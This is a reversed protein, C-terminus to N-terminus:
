AAPEPLWTRYVSGAPYLAHLRPGYTRELAQAPATQGAARLAKAYAIALRVTRPNDAGRDGLMYEYARRAQERAGGRDGQADLMRSRTAAARAHLELEVGDGVAEVQQLLREATAHDGQAAHWQALPLRVYALELDSVEGTSRELVVRELLARAEDNAQGSEILVQGLTTRLTQLVALDPGAIAGSHIALAERLLPLAQAFEGRLYRLWGAHFVARAYQTSAAGNRQLIVPLAREALAEAEDFLGHEALRDTMVMREMALVSSDEGFLERTLAIRERAVALGREYHGSYVLANELRRLALRYDNSRAAGAADYLSLAQECHTRAEQHAGSGSLVACLDVLRHARLLTTGGAAEVLALARRAAQVADDLQGNADLSQALAGYAASRELPDHAAHATVLDFARQAAQAAELTSDRSGLLASSKARLSRAAGLPDGVAMYLDAAADLMPAGASGENIGRYANGLAELLRARVRPQGALEHDVRERGRDLVERASYDHRGAQAPDSLSFASVLFETTREAVQAQMRADQATRVAHWTFGVLLALAAAASGLPWRHRQFFRQARYAWQDRRATVPRAALFRGLDDALAQVSAYRQAPERRLAKLVIADIDAPIRVGRLPAPSAAAAPDPPAPIRKLQSPPLVSGTVAANARAHESELHDFPRAGTLLEYLMVGLSWVDTATGLPRGEIQEPSAYAPTMLRTATRDVSDAELLRAIGFDLLKPEGAADVLVNAPKLDRHIVLQQHAYSVAACTKIFLQLRGRLDPDHRACWQDIREGEIYEMALFPAGDEDDGADLLRAINPHNLAGLVRQEVRLRDQQGAARSHLRKLAVRLVADGVAHEALWVEGMGGEGIRRILRYRRPLVADIRLDRAITRTASLVADPLADLSADDTAELLWEVERRLAPDDAGCAALREARQEPSLELLAHALAQAQAYLADRM